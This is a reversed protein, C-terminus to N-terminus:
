AGLMDDPLPLRHSVNKGEEHRSCAMQSLFATHHPGHSPQLSRGGCNKGPPPLPMPSATSQAANGPLNWAVAPLTSALICLLASSIPWFRRRVTSSSAPRPRPCHHRSQRMVPRRMGSYNPCSKGHVVDCWPPKGSYTPCSRGHVIDCRQLNEVFAFSCASLHIFSRGITAWRCLYVM